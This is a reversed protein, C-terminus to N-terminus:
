YKIPLAINNRSRSIWFGEKQELMASMLHIDDIAQHGNESAIRQAESLLEQARITFKDIQM